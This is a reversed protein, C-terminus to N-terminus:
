EAGIFSIKMFINKVKELYKVVISKTKVYLKILKIVCKILKVICPNINFFFKKELKFRKKSM